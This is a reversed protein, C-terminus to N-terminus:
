VEATEFIVFEIIAAAAATVIAISAITFLLLLELLVTKILTM